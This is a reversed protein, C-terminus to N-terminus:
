TTQGAHPISYLIGCCGAALAALLAFTGSYGLHYAALGILPGGCLTGTDLAMWYLAAGTGQTQAPFPRMSLVAMTNFTFGHGIGGFLAPLALKWESNVCLYALMSLGIAVFGITAVLTPGFVDPWRRFLLRVVMASAAYVWYYQGLTRLGRVDIFRSLFGFPVALLVGLAVAVILARGPWHARITKLFANNRAIPDQEEGRLCAVLVMTMCASATTAFFIMRFRDLTPETTGLFLDGLSPGIMMGVFGGIGFSGFAEAQREIPTTRAIYTLGTTFILAAGLIQVMRVVYVGTGLIEFTCFGATAVTYLATGAIWVRKAGFRDIWGGVAPRVAIGLLTGGGLIWGIDREDGGLFGIWRAFHVLLSNGTIFVFHVTCALIFNLDYLRKNPVDSVGRFSGGKYRRPSSGGFRQKVIM